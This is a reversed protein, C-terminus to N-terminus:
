KKRTKFNKHWRNFDPKYATIIHIRDTDDTACVVHVPYKTKASSWGLKLFSPFPKDNEYSVIIEGTAAAAMVDEILLDDNDIEDLAHETFYFSKKGAM